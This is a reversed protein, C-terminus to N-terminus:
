MWDFEDVRPDDETAKRRMLTVQTTGNELPRLHVELVATDKMRTPVRFVYKLDGIVASGSAVPELKLEAKYFDVVTQAPARVVYVAQLQDKVKDHTVIVEDDVAGASRKGKGKRAEPEYVKVPSFQSAAGVKWKSFRDAQQCHGDAPFIVLAVATVALSLVFPLIRKM